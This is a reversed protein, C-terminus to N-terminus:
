LCGVFEVVEGVNGVRLWRQAIEAECGRDLRMPITTDDLIASVKRDLTGIGQWVPKGVTKEADWFQWGIREVRFVTKIEINKYWLLDELILLLLLRWDHDPDM